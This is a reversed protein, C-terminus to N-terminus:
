KNIIIKDYIKDIKKQMDDLQSKFNDSTEKTTYISSVEQLIIRHKEELQAPTVFVNWQLIIAIIIVAFPAYKEITDKDM